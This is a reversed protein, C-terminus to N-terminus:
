AYINLHTPIVQNITVVWGKKTTVVRGGFEVLM